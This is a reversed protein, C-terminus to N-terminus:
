QMRGNMVILLKKLIVPNVLQVIISKVTMLFMVQIMKLISEQKLVMMSEQFKKLVHLYEYLNSFHNHHNMKFYMNKLFVKRGQLFLVIRWTKKLLFMRM